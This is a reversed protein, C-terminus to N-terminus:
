TCLSSKRIDGIAAAQRSKREVLQSTVRRERGRRRHRRCIRPLDGDVATPTEKIHDMVCRAATHRGIHDVRNRTDSCQAAQNM